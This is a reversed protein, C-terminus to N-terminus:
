RRAGRKANRLIKQALREAIENHRPIMEEIEGNTWVDHKGGHRKFEWGMTKLANELDRRKLVQERKDTM